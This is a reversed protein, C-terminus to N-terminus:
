LFVMDSSSSSMSNRPDVNAEVVGVLLVSINSIIPCKECSLGPDPNGFVGIRQLGDSSAM